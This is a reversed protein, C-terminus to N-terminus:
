RRYMESTRIIISQKTEAASMWGTTDWGVRTYITMQHHLQVPLAACRNDTTSQTAINTIMDLTDKHASQTHGTLQRRRGSCQVKNNVRQSPVTSVSTMDICSPARATYLSCTTLFSRHPWFGHLTLHLSSHLINRWVEPSNQPPAKLHIKVQAISHIHAKNTALLHRNSRTDIVILYLIWVAQSITLIIKGDSLFCSDANCFEVPIVALSTRLCLHSITTQANVSREVLTHYYHTLRALRRTCDTGCHVQTWQETLVLSQQWASVAVSQQELTM